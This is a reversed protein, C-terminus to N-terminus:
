LYVLQGIVGLHRGEGFEYLMTALDWSDLIYGM